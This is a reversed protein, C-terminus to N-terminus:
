FGFSLGLGAGGPHVTPTLRLDARKSDGYQRQWERREEQYDSRDSHGVLAMVLGGGAMLGGAIAFDRWVTSDGECDWGSDYGDGCADHYAENIQYFSYGVMTGIGFLIWGTVILGMGRSRPAPPIRDTAAPAAAPPTPAEALAAPTPVHVKIEDSPAEGSPAAEDLDTLAAESRAALGGPGPVVEVRAMEEFPVLENQGDVSVLLGRQTEAIVEGTLTAGDKKEVQVVEGVKAALATAPAVVMMAAVVLALLRRSWSMGNQSM